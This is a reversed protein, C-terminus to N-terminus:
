RQYIPLLQYPTSLALVALATTYVNGYKADGKYGNAMEPDWSGDAHQAEALVNLLRPFFRHWDDGGLQFMAQSCYFASYHYRDEPHWSNNYPEFKHRHIWKAAECGTESRHEGGLELCVIGAGVMARSCYREDGSLAYVFGRENVDFCHHVYAMASKIWEEPVNFEANRASRPFMLQWATVSLDSENGPRDQVYRWGGKEEPNAKPRMQQSRSYRLARDIAERIREHRRADTMGFVEALMLGCIGHCYNGSYSKPPRAGVFREPFISGVAPDQVDLIYDIARDLQAGYPGKGPQHGRALFALVCLGTVGPHANDATPFSGDRDQSKAIFAIGRDVAHDLRSWEEPALLARDVSRGSANSKKRPAGADVPGQAPLIPTWSLLSIILCVFIPHRQLHMSLSPSHDDKRSNRSDVM